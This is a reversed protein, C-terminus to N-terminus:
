RVTPMKHQTLKMPAYCSQWNLILVHGNNRNFCYITLVLEYYDQDTWTTNHTLILPACCQQCRVPLMGSCLIYSMDMIDNITRNGQMIFMTQWSHKSSHLTPSKHLRLHKLIMIRQILKNQNDIMCIQCTYGYVNACIWLLHVISLCQMWSILKICFFDDSNNM